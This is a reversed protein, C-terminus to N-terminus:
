RYELISKSGPLLGKALSLGLRDALQDLLDRKTTFNKMDEEGIVDRAVDSSSSFDDVLGIDKGRLGSWFLGSFLIPDDKLRDGRGEKVANIFQQHLEALVSKIYDTEEPKAPSFPDLIGKHEGATLLRREVGIKEMLGVYGFSNILVGISGVLSNENAYIKDAASAIYYCASACMDVVVAYLPIKPYKKRLRKIERYIYSAQVPSGGPSNLRLIVGKTKKDKFADRLSSIIKDASAEEGAAIVGTLDVIASHNGQKVNDLADRDLSFLMLIVVLYSLFALKFFIGWRRSRRQENIAALSLKELLQREWKNSPNSPGASHIESM